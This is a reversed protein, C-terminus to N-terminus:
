LKTKGLMAKLLREADVRIMMARVWVRAKKRQTRFYEWILEPTKLGDRESLEQLYDMSGQLDKDKPLPKPTEKNWVYAYIRDLTAYDYDARDQIEALIRRLLKRTKNPLGM